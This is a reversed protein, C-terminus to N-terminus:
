RPKGEQMADRYKSPSIKYHQRFLRSFYYPDDFGVLQAIRQVTLTGEILHDAASQMRARALYQMATMGIERRFVRNLHQPTYGAQKALAALTIPRTLDRNMEDMMEAVIPDAARYTFLGERTNHLLLERVILQCWGPMLLQPDSVESREYEKMAARLHRDLPCGQRIQQTRPPILMDFVDQGSPLKVEVHFSGITMRRTKSYGHHHIGPPVIILTGTKLVHPVEELVWVVTGRTVYILNYDPVTRPVLTFGTEFKQYTCHNTTVRVQRLVFEILSDPPSESIATTRRKRRTDGM